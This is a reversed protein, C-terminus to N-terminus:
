YVLHLKAHIIESNHTSQGNGIYPTAEIIIGEIDPRAQKLYMMTTLGLIGSGICLVRVM